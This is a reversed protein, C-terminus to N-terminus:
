GKVKDNEPCSARYPEDPGIYSRWEDLTLNRGVRQCVEPLHRLLEESSALPQASAQLQTELESGLAMDWVQAFNESVTTLRREGDVLAVLRAEKHNVSAVIKQAAYDWIEVGDATAVAVLKGDQNLALGTVAAGPSLDALKQADPFRAGASDGNPGEQLAWIEVRYTPGTEVRNDFGGTALIQGNASIVLAVPDGQLYRGGGVYRSGDASREALWVRAVREEIQRHYGITALWGGNESLAVGVVDGTYHELNAILKGQGIDWVQASSTLLGAALKRGDASFALAQVRDPSGLEAVVRRSAVEWLRIGGQREATALQWGNSGLAIASVESAPPALELLLEATSLRWVRVRDSSVVAVHDGDASLALPARPNNSLRVAAAYALSSRLPPYRQLVKAWARQGELTTPARRLSESALLVGVTVENPEASELKAEAAVALRRALALTDEVDMEGVSSRPAESHAGRLKQYIALLEIMRQQYAAAQGPGNYSRAFTMYDGQRLPDILGNAEVFRFLGTLQNGADQRFADYMAEVTTFGIAAHNFGMIQPAGMGTSLLAAHEDLSRALEFVRWEADQNGHFSQWDADAAPRWRHEQWKRNADFAFYQHFQTENQKGWHDYFLHNEFRISMRGDASFPESITETMLVALAVAPEIGLREAEVLLLGGYRNWADAVARAAPNADPPTKIQQGAPPALPTEGAQGHLTPLLAALADLIALNSPREALLLRSLVTDLATLDAVAVPVLSRILAAREPPPPEPTALAEAALRAALLPALGPDPVNVTTGTPLPQDPTFRPNLRQFEDLPHQYVEALAALTRAQMLRDPLPLQAPTHRRLTYSQGITHLAAFAEAQPDSRLAQIHQTWHAIPAPWWRSRLADVRATMRALFTPDAVNHAAQQAAQLAQEIWEGARAPHCVLIAEALTLHAAAEMGAFGLPLALARQLLDTTSDGLLQYAVLQAYAALLRRHRAWPDDNAGEASLGGAEDWTRLFHSQLTAVADAAGALARLALVTLPLAEQFSTQGGDLAVLTLEAVKAKVWGQEPHQLVARLLEWLSALRYAPYPYAAHQALYAQWYREGAQPNAAVFAVLAPGQTTSLLAPSGDTAGGLGPTLLEPDPAGGLLSRLADEPPAPPLHLAPLPAGDLDARVRQVLLPRPDDPALGTLEASLDDLRQRAPDPQKESALWATELRRVHQWNAEGELRNLLEVAQAVQGRRALDFASELWRRPDRARVLELALQVLRPLVEPRGDAAAADLAQRLQQQRTLPDATTTPIAQVEELSDPQAPSEILLPRPQVEHAEVVPLRVAPDGLLIFNRMDSGYAWLRALETRDPSGGFQIFGLQTRLHMAFEAYRENFEELALGIPYGELARKMGTAYLSAQQGPGQWDSSSGWLRDLWGVVALAGGRRHGLLRQPLRALASRPPTVEREPQLRVEGVFEDEVGIGASYAAHLFAISGLLNAGEALDDGAFYFDQPIAQRWVTPGPWDQCLLAGQHALQHPDGAPFGLGHGSAFLLAPTESGGLLAALRTKTAADALITQIEWGSNDQQLTRALPEVLQTLCRRTVADDPNAAGFFTAHRALKVQGTEAMVVSRAYADYEDLTAFHIRGVAYQVDLQSQFHYPIEQPSGVLLLYYPVQNPDAPGPGVGHRALYGNKADSGVRFGRDAGQVWTAFREGAQQLRLQLLPTLAERIAAVQQLKETQDIPYTPFIVGWGSEELKKPDIGEIVAM